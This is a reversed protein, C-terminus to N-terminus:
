NPTQRRSTTLNRSPTKKFVVFYSHMTTIVSQGHSTFLFILMDIYHTQFIQANANFSQKIFM